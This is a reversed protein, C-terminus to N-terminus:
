QRYHPRVDHIYTTLGRYDRYDCLKIQVRIVIIIIICKIIITYKHITMLRDFHQRSLLLSSFTSSFFVQQTDVYNPKRRINYSKLRFVHLYQYTAMGRTRFSFLNPFDFVNESVTRVDVAQAPGGLRQRWYRM